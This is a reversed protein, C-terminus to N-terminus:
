LLTPPDILPVPLYSLPSDIMSFSWQPVVNSANSSGLPIPLSISLNAILKQFHEPTRYSTFLMGASNFIFQQKRNSCYEWNM